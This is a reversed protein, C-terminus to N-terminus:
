APILFQYPDLRINAEEKDSIVRNWFYVWYLWECGYDHYNARAGLKVQANTPPSFASTRTTKATQTIFRQDGTVQDWSLSVVQPNVSVTGFIYWATGGVKLTFRNDTTRNSITFESGDAGTETWYRGYGIDVFAQYGSTMITAEPMLDDSYLDILHGEAEGTELHYPFYANNGKIVGEAPLMNGVKGKALNVVATSNLLYCGVLGNASPHSWDIKVPGVPKKGPVLLNPERLMVEDVILTM